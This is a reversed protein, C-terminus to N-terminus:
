LLRPRGWRRRERWGRHRERECRTSTRAQSRGVRDSEMRKRKRRGSEGVEGGRVPAQGPTVGRGQAADAGGGAVRLLLQDRDVDEGPRAGLFGLLEAEKTTLRVAGGGDRVFVQRVLDATGTALRLTRAPPAVPPM